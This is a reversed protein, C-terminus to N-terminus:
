AHLWAEPLLRRYAAYSREAVALLLGLNSPTYCVLDLVKEMILVITNGDEIHYTSYRAPQRESSQLEAIALYAKQQPGELLAAIAAGAALRM